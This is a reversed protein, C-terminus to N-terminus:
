LLIKDMDHNCSNPALGITQGILQPWFHAYLFCYVIIDTMQKQEYVDTLSHPCEQPLHICVHNDITVLQAKREYKIWVFYIFVM